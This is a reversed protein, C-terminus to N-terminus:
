AAAKIAARRAREDCIPRGVAEVEPRRRADANLWQYFLGTLADDTVTTLDAPIAALAKDALHANLLDENFVYPKGAVLREGPRLVPTTAVEVYNATDLPM